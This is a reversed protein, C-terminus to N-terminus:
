TIAGVGDFIHEIVVPKTVMVDIDDNRTADFGNTMMAPLFMIRMAVLLRNTLSTLVLTYSRM